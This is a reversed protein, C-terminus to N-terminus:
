FEIGGGGGSQYSDSFSGFFTFTDVIPGSANNLRITVTGEREHHTFTNFTDALEGAVAVQFVVSDGNAVAMTPTVPSDPGNLSGTSHRLYGAGNRRSSIDYPATGSSSVSIHLTAAGPMVRAAGNRWNPTSSSGNTASTGFSPIDAFDVSFSSKGRLNESSYAAGLGAATALQASTLPLSLSTWEARVTADSFTGSTPIAM